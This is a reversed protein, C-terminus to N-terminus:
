HQPKGAMCENVIMERQRDLGFDSRGAQWMGYAQQRCKALDDSYAAVVPLIGAGLAALVMGIALIKSM